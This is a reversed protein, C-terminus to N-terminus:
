ESGGVFDCMWNALTRDPHNAAIEAFVAPHEDQGLKIAPTCERVHARFAIIRELMSEYRAGLEATTWRGPERGELHDLLREVSDRTEDPRFEVDVRFRLAAYNWTPGWDTESVHRPSIYGAPGNFLVLASPAQAFDECLPNGRACHGFLATIEGQANREALLPLPSAHFDRSIVWALPYDRVLRAIHEVMAPSHGPM